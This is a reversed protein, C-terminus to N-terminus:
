ETVQVHEKVSIAYLIAASIDSPSLASEAKEGEIGPTIMDSIQDTEVLGPSIATIKVNGQEFFLL